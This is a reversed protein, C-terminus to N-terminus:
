KNGGNSNSVNIRAQEEPKIRRFTGNDNIYVFQQGEVSVLMDVHGDANVDKFSLTVPALDSDKFYLPPGQIVRTQMADAGPQEYIIVQHNLNQAMFHTPTGNQENHGVWADTQSTRPRGYTMDDQWTQWWHMVNSVLFFGLIFVGIVAGITVLLRANLLGAGINFNPLLSRRPQRRAYPDAMNSAPALSRQQMIPRASTPVNAGRQRVGVGSLPQPVNSPTQRVTSQAMPDGAVRFAPQRIARSGPINATRTTAIMGDDEYDDDYDHNPNYM